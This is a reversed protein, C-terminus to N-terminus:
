SLPMSLHRRARLSAVLIALARLRSAQREPLLRQPQHRPAAMRPLRLGTRHSRASLRRRRAAARAPFRRIRCEIESWRGARDTEDELHIGGTNEGEDRCIKGSDHAGAAAASTPRRQSSTAASRPRSASPAMAAKILRRSVHLPTVSSQGISSEVSRTATSRAAAAPKKGTIAGEFAIAAEAHDPWAVRAAFRRRTLSRHDRWHQRRRGRLWAIDHAQRTRRRGTSPSFSKGHGFLFSEALNGGGKAGLRRRRFGLRGLDLRGSILGDSSLRFLYQRGFRQRLKRSGLRHFCGGLQNGYFRRCGLRLRDRHGFRTHRFCRRDVDERWKRRHCGFQDEFAKSFGPALDSFQFRDEIGRGVANGNDIGLPPDLADVLAGFGQEAHRGLFDGPQEEGIEKGFLAPFRRQVIKLAQRPVTDRADQVVAAFHDAAHRLAPSIGSKM